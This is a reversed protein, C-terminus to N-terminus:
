LFKLNSINCGKRVSAESWESMRRQTAITVDHTWCVPVSYSAMAAIHLWDTTSALIFILVHTSCDFDM